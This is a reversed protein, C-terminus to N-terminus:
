QRRCGSHGSPHAPSYARDLLDVGRSDPRGSMRFAQEAELIRKRCEASPDTDPAAPAAAETLLRLSM